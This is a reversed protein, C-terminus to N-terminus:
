KKKPLTPKGASAETVHDKISQSQGAGLEGWFQKATKIPIKKETAMIRQEKGRRSRNVKQITKRASDRRACGCSQVGREKHGKLTARLLVGAVIVVRSCACRCKWRARSKLTDHYGEVFLRGVVKGRMDLREHFMASGETKQEV